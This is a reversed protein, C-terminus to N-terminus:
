ISNESQWLKRPVLEIEVAIPENVATQLATQIRQYDQNTLRDLDSTRLTVQIRWQPAPESSLQMQMEDLTLDTMTDLERQLAEYLREKAIQVMADRESVVSVISQIQLELDVQQNLASELRTVLATQEAWDISQQEPLLIVATISTTATDQASRVTIDEVRSSPHNTVFHDSLVSEITSFSKGVLSQHRLLSILPNAIVILLALIFLLSKLRIDAHRRSSLGLTSFLLATVFIITIANASFLLFSKTFVQPHGLVLGIASACIPPLLATAIAVGALSSSVRKFLIGLAAVTGAVLAIVIDLFTPQARNLIESGVAKLPSVFTILAASFFVIAISILLLTLGRKILQKQSTSIGLSLELLPWMLPSIIMGGIITATSNQLLGLTSIVTSGILLALYSLGFHTHDAILQKAQQTDPHDLDNLEDFDLNGLSHSQRHFRM